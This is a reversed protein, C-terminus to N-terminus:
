SRKQDMFELQRYSSDLHDHEAQEAVAGTQQAIHVISSFYSARQMGHLSIHPQDIHGSDM